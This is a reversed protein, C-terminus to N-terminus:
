ELSIACSQDSFFPSQCISLRLPDQIPSATQYTRQCALCLFLSVPSVHGLPKVRTSLFYLACLLVILLCLLRREFEFSEDIANRLAFRAGKAFQKFISDRAQTAIEIRPLLLVWDATDLIGNRTPDGRDLHCILVAGTGLLTENASWNYSTKGTGRGVLCTM